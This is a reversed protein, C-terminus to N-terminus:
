QVHALSSQVYLVSFDSESEKKYPAEKYFSVPYDFEGEIEFFSEGDGKLYPVSMSNLQEAIDDYYIQATCIFVKMGYASLEPLENPPIVKVGNVEKGWLISKNDSYAVIDFARSLKHYAYKGREGAGFIVAKNM